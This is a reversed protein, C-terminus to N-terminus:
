NGVHIVKSYGAELHCYCGAETGTPGRMEMDQHQLDSALEECMKFSEKRMLFNQAWQQNDWNHM